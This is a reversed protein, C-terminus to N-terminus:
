RSPSYVSRGGSPDPCPEEPQNTYVPIVFKCPKDLMGSLVYARHTNRAEDLPAAINQMYQMWRFEGAERAVSFKQLYRTHRCNAIFRERLIRAGGEIARAQSTWPGCYRECTEKRVAERWANYRIEFLGRGYAGINFMNYCGNYHERGKALVAATAEGDRTYKEGWVDDNGVRDAKNSHLEVLSDGITGRSQVSGVGQESALRGALFVPSIDLRRGVDVLLEAFTLRGGDCRANAMFTGKLTREVIERTQTREDFGLTEFLFIDTENMFNRPDMFYAIAERSAQYWSGSDYAKANEAYYPTFNTIGLGTWPEPAWTEAAVLNWSPTCEKDVIREWPIDSVKLPEFRWDPHAVSLRALRVAYGPPFGAKELRERARSLRVFHLATLGIAIAAAPIAWLVAKRWPHEKKRPRKKMNPQYDIM